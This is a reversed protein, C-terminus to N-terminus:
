SGSRRAYRWELIFSVVTGMAVFLWVFRPAIRIRGTDALLFVAAGALFLWATISCHFTHNKLWNAFCGVAAALLITATSTTHLPPWFVGVLSLLGWAALSVSCWYCMASPSSCCAQRKPDSEAIHPTTRTSETSGM